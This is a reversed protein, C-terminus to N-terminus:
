NLIKSNKIQGLAKQLNKTRLIKFEFKLWEKKLKRM